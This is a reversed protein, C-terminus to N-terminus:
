IHADGSFDSGFRQVMRNELRTMMQKFSRLEEDSLVATLEQELDLAIPVIRDHVQQGQETLCLLNSRMDNENDRRAILQAATLRSVARSVKAKDMSTRETLSGSTLTGYRGLTAIIRWEPISLGFQQAHQRAFTVAIHSALITVQYPLFNELDLTTKELESGM